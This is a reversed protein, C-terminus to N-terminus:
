RCVYMCVYLCVYMCANVCVHMCVYVSVHICRLCCNMLVHRCVSMSIYKCLSSISENIRQSMVYCLMDIICNFMIDSILVIDCWSCM